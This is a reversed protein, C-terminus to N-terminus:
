LKVKLDDGLSSPNGAKVLANGLVDGNPLKWCINRLEEQERVV